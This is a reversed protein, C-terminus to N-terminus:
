SGLSSIRKSTKTAVSAKARSGHHVSSGRGNHVSHMRSLSRPENDHISVAFGRGQVDCSVEVIRLLGEWKRTSVKNKQHQGHVKLHRETKHVSHSGSDIGRQLNSEHNKTEHSVEKGNMAEANRACGRLRNGRGLSEKREADSASKMRGARKETRM